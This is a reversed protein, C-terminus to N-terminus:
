HIVCSCYVHGGGPALGGCTGTPGQPCGGVCMTPSSNGCHPWKKAPITSPDVGLRKGEAQQYEEFTGPTWLKRGEIEVLRFGYPAYFVPPINKLEEPLSKVFEEFSPQDDREAVKMVERCQILPTRTFTDCLVFIKLYIAVFATILYQKDRGRAVLM